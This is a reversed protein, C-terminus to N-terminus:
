RIDSILFGNPVGSELYARGQYWGTHGSNEFTLDPTQLFIPQRWNRTKQGSRMAIAYQEFLNGLFHEMEPLFHGEWSIAFIRGTPSAYERIITGNRDTIEYVMSGLHLTTAVKGAVYDRDVEISSITGNLEARLPRALSLAVGSVLLLFRLKSLKRHVTDVELNSTM